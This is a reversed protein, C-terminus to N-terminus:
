VVAGVMDNPLKWHLVATHSRALGTGYRRVLLESRLVCLRNEQYVAKCQKTSNKLAVCIRIRGEDYKDLLFV